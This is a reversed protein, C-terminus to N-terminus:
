FCCHIGGLFVEENCVRVTCYDRRVEKTEATNRGMPVHAAKKYTWGMRRLCRVITARSVRFQHRVRLRERLGMITLTADERLIEEIRRLIAIMSAMGIIKSVFLIKHVGLQFM